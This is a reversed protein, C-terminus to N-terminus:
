AEDACGRMEYVAGDRTRLSGLRRGAAGQKKKGDQNKTMTAAHHRHATGGVM